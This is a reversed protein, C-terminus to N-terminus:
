KEKQYTSIINAWEILESDSMSHKMFNIKVHVWQVNGEIYGIKSNIRDLSVTRGVERREGFTLTVGSLACKKDQLVFLEWLYEINLNFEINRQKANNKIFTYYESPIDGFGKWRHHHNLKVCKICGNSAQKLTGTSRNHIAGCKCRCKWKDREIHELLTYNGYIDNIKYKTARSM